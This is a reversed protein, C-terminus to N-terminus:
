LGHRQCKMVSPIDYEYQSWVLVNRTSKGTSDITLHWYDLHSPKRGVKLCRLTSSKRNLSRVWSSRRCSSLERETMADNKEYGLEITPNPYTDESIIPLHIELEVPGVDDPKTLKVKEKDHCGM